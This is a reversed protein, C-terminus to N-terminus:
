SLSSSFVEPSNSESTYRMEKMYFYRTGDIGHNNNDEPKNTAKGTPDLRWSYRSFEDILDVSDETILIEHEQMLSIGHIISDPGKDAGYISWGYRQLETITKPDSSDAWIMYDSDVCESMRKHIDSNLLGRNYILQKLIIKKNWKYVAILATPDNSFGFDMGYGLLEAEKPLEKITKWNEFIVGELKGTQGLGYVKWRNKWYETKLTEAKIKYSELEKKVNLNIAENDLYNVIIFSSDDEKLVETHAWFELVPNFDIYIEKNTRIALQNYINYPIYNAENIYLIDRRPGKAKGEKDIAGFRIITGNAFKYFHKTENWSSQNWRSTQNMINKFDQIAGKNLHDYTM